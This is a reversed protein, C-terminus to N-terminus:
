QSSRKRFIRFLPGVRKYQVTRVVKTSPTHSIFGSLELADVVAMEYAAELCHRTATAYAMAITQSDFNDVMKQIAQEELVALWGSRKNRRRESAGSRSAWELGRACRHADDGSYKGSNILALTEKRDKRMLAFDDPTYWVMAVEDESYDNVHLTERATVVPFFRVRKRSHQTSEDVNVLAAEKSHTLQHFQLSLQTPNIIM